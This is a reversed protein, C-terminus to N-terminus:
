EGGNDIEPQEEQTEDEHDSGTKDIRESILLSKGEPVGLNDPMNDIDSLVQAQDVSDGNAITTPFNFLRCCDTLFRQRASKIEGNQPASNLKDLVDIVSRKLVDKKRQAGDVLIGDGDKIEAHYYDAAYDPCFDPITGFPKVEQSTAPVEAKETASSSEFWDM